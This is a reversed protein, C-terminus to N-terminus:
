ATSEQRLVSHCLERAHRGLLKELLGLEGCSVLMQRSPMVCQNGRPLLEPPLLLYVEHEASTKKLIVRTTLKHVCVFILQLGHLIAVGVQLTVNTSVFFAASKLLLHMHCELTMVHLM